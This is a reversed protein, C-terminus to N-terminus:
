PLVGLFAYPSFPEEPETSPLTVVYSAGTGDEQILVLEDRGMWGGVVTPSTDNLETLVTLPEGEPLRQARLALVSGDPMTGWERWVVWENGPAFSFDGALLTGELGPVPIKAKDILALLTVTLGASPSLDTHAQILWAGDPSVAADAVNELDGVLRTTGTIVDVALVGPNFEFYAAESM